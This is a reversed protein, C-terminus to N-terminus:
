LWKAQCILINVTWLVGGIRMGVFRIAIIDIELSLHSCFIDGAGM